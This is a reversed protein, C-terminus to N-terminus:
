YEQITSVKVTPGTTQSITYTAPEAHKISLRHTDPQQAGSEHYLVWQAM